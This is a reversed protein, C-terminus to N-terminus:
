FKNHDIAVVVISNEEIDLKSKSSEFQIRASSLGATKLKDGAFIRDGKRIPSWLLRGEAQRSVENNLDVVFAVAQKSSLSDSQWEQPRLFIWTVLLGCITIGLAIYIRRM